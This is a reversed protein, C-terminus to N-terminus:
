RRGSRRDAPSEPLNPNGMRQQYERSYYLKTDEDFLVKVMIILLPLMTFVLLSTWMLRRLTSAEIKQRQIAYQDDSNVFDSLRMEALAQRDSESMKPRRPPNGALVDNLVILREGIGMQGEVAAGDYKLPEAGSGAQEAVETLPNARWIRHIWNEYRVAEAQASELDAYQVEGQKKKLNLDATAFEASAESLRAQLDNEQRTAQKLREEAGRLLGQLRPRDQPDAAALDKELTGVQYQAFSRQKLSESHREAIADRNESARDKADTEAVTEKITFAADVASGPRALADARRQVLAPLQSLVQEQHIRLDIQDELLFLDIPLSTAFAIFLVTVARLVVAAWKFRSGRQFDATLFTSEYQMILTAMLVGILMAVWTLPEFRRVNGTLFTNALGSWAFTDVVWLGVLFLAATYINKYAAPALAFEDYLLLGTRRMLWLLFPSRRPRRADEEGPIVPPSLIDWDLAGQTAGNEGHDRHEVPPPGAASDPRFGFTGM